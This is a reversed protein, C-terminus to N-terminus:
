AGEIIIAVYRSPIAVNNIEGKTSVLFRASNPDIVLLSIRSASREPVNRAIWKTVQIFDNSYVVTALETTKTDVTGKHTASNEGIKM